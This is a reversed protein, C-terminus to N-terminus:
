IFTINFRVFGFHTERKYKILNRIGHKKSELVQRNLKEGTREDIEHAKARFRRGCIWLYFTGDGGRDFDATKYTMTRRGECVEKNVGLGRVDFKLNFKREGLLAMRLVMKMDDTNASLRSGGHEPSKDDGFYHGWLNGSEGCEERLEELQPSSPGEDEIRRRGGKSHNKAQERTSVSNEDNPIVRLYGVRANDGGYMELLDTLCDFDSEFIPHTGM